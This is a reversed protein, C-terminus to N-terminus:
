LSPKLGHARITSIFCLKSLTNMYGSSSCARFISSIGGWDPYGTKTCGTQTGRTSSPVGNMWLRPFKRDMYSNNRLFICCFIISQFKSVQLLWLLAFVSSLYERSPARPSFGKRAWYRANGVQGSSLKIPMFIIIKFFADFGWRKTNVSLYKLAFKAYM